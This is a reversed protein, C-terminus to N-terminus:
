CAVLGPVALIARKAGAAAVARGGILIGGRRASEAVSTLVEQRPSRVSPVAFSIDDGRTPAAEHSSFAAPAPQARERKTGTLGTILNVGPAKGAGRVTTRTCAECRRQDTPGAPGTGDHVLPLLGSTSTSTCRHAPISMPLSSTTAQTRVGPGPPRPRRLCVRVKEENVWVSSSIASQNRASPTVSIAISAVPGYQFGTQYTSSSRGKSSIRSTLLRWTFIRGPRLLSTSSASHSASSSSCPNSRLLKTGGGAM